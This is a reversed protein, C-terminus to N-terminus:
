KKNSSKHLTKNLKSYKNKKTPMEPLVLGASIVLKAADEVSMDLYVIDKEELFLLFGSTPNPTTPVFVTLLEGKKIKAPIEGKATTSVFAIAWIGIRPYQIICAKQFSQNNQNFVTEAIQKIAKYISRIIPTKNVIYEGLRIIQRGLFGKALAGIITLFILFFLVGFGPVNQAFVGNPTFQKPLWPVIIDDIFTVTAWVLYFTIGIPLVLILGTLFNARTKQILSQKQM